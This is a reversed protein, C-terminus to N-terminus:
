ARRNPHVREDAQEGFLGSAIVLLESARSSVANAACSRRVAKGEERNEARAKVAQTAQLGMRNNHADGCSKRLYKHAIKSDHPNEVTQQAQDAREADKEVAAGEREHPARQEGAHGIGEGQHVHEVTKQNERDKESDDGADYGYDGSEAQYGAAGRGAAEAQDRGEQPQDVPREADRQAGVRQHHQDRRSRAVGLRCGSKARFIAEYYRGWQLMSCTVGRNGNSENRGHKLKSAPSGVGIASALGGSISSIKRGYSFSTSIVMRPLVNRTGSLFESSRAKWNMLGSVM